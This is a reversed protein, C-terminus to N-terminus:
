RLDDFIFLACLPAPWIVSGILELGPLRAPRM